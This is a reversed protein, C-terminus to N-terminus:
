FRLEDGPQLGIQKATGSRLEVVYQADVHCFSSPYTSPALDQEIANVQKEANLWVIDINFKMDKMWFCRVDPKDFVFVMAANADLNDRGSLGQQQEPQTSVFEAIFDHNNITLKNGQKGSFGIAVM